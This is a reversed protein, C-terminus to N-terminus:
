MDFEFSLRTWWLSTYLRSHHSLYSTCIRQQNKIVM